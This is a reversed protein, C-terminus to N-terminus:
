GSRRSIILNLLQALEDASFSNQIEEFLVREELRVHSELLKGLKDLESLVDGASDLQEIYERLLRHEHVLRKTLDLLSDNKMRVFPFLLEEEIRFHNVLESKYCHKAEAKKEEPSQPFTKSHIGERQLNMALVLAHHHDRSLETLAPHRKM